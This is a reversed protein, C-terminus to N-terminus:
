SALEKAACKGCIGHSITAGREILRRDADTFATSCWACLLAIRKPPIRGAAFLTRM